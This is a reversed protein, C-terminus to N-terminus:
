RASQGPGAHTRVLVLLGTAWALKVAACDKRSELSEILAAVAAGHGEPWNPQPLLDDVIYIGGPRLLALTEELHSFKGPWADAFILDFAARPAHVVFEAGDVASFTVRPDRGLHRRAVEAARPDTEVTELRATPDMGDLLWATGVGTGTGLELLRGGPKSAALARLLRGTRSESAMSFSLQRTDGLIAELVAPPDPIDGDDMRGTTVRGGDDARAREGYVVRDLSGSPQKPHPWTWPIPQREKSHGPLIVRLVHGM